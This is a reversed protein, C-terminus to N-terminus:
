VQLVSSLTLVFNSLATPQKIILAGKSDKRIELMVLIYDDTGHGM